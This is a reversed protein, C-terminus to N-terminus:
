LYYIIGRTENITTDSTRFCDFKVRELNLNKHANIDLGGCLIFM